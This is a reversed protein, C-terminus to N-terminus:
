NMLSIMAEVAGDISSRKGIKRGDPRSTISVVIPSRPVNEIKHRPGDDDEGDDM